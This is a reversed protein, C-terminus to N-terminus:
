IPGMHTQEPPNQIPFGLHSVFPRAWVFGVCDLVCPGWMPNVHPRHTNTTTPKQYSLGSPICITTGVFFGCRRVCIPGVNANYPAWTHQNHHTKPLLAWIHHLHAHGCLVWICDLVRPGCMAMISPGHTNTTNPKQYSLGSPICITTGVFFFCVTRRVCIYPGWTPMIHAGHTNITTPKQYYLGSTICIPTGM